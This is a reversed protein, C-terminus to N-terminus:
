NWCLWIAWGRERCSSSHGICPCVQEKCGPFSLSPCDWCWDHLLGRWPDLLKQCKSGMAALMKFSIGKTLFMLWALCYGSTRPAEASAPSLTCCAAVLNWESFCWALGWVSSVMCLYTKQDSFCKDSLPSPAGAFQLKHLLQLLILTSVFIVSPLVKNMATILLCFSNWILDTLSPNQVRYEYNLGPTKKCKKEIVYGNPWTNIFDKSLDIYLYIIKFIM